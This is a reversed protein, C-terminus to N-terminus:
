ITQLTAEPLFYYPYNEHLSDICSMDEPSLDPGELASLNKSQNEKSGSRLVAVVGKQVTWRILTQISTRGTRKSIEKITDNVKGYGVFWPNLVGYSQMVIGLEKCKAYTSPSQFRPHFEMQNIAPMIKAYGKMEELLEAPYNSVGIMKAKGETFARELLAWSRKRRELSEQKSIGQRTAKCMMSDIILPRVLDGGPLRDPKVADPFGWLNFLEFYWPCCAANYEGVSVLPSHLLLLDVYELGLQKLSLDISATEEGKLNNDNYMWVGASNPPFFGVKTTVQFNDRPVGSMKIGRGVEAQNGYLLAADILTYGNQLANCVAQATRDQLAATGLSIKPLSGSQGKVKFSFKTTM